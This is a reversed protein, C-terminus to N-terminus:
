STKPFALKRGAQSPHVDGDPIQNQFANPLLPIPPFTLYTPLCGGSSNHSDSMPGTMYITDHASRNSLGPSNYTCADASLSYTVPSYGESALKM